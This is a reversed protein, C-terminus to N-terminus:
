DNINRPSTRGYPFLRAGCFRQSLGWDAGIVVADRHHQVTPLVIDAHQDIGDAEEAVAAVHSVYVGVDDPMNLKAIDGARRRWVCVGHDVLRSQAPQSRAVADM